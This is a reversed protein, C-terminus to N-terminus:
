VVAAISRTDRKRTKMQKIEVDWKRTHYWCNYYTLEQKWRNESVLSQSQRELHYLTIDRFMRINLGMQRCRMCLDSDEYDGLIYSEDLGGVQEYNSKTMLICAGTVAEVDDSEVTDLLSAPMGKGPHINTWLNNVFESAHYRMGDHQISDDEYVLRVGYVTEDIESSCSEVLQDLWGSSAPMVDSNLLLVLPANAHRVGANNAGAFGMNRELYLVRFPIHYLKEYAGCVTKVEEHIRPDDVVYVIDQKQLYPDNVFQSLQYEIFDYRGYIPIILSVSPSAAKLEACYQISEVNVEEPNRKSWIAEIAPGYAHDFLDRKQPINSPVANLIKQIADLPTAGVRNVKVGIRKTLGNKGKLVLHVSARADLSFGEEAHYLAFGAGPSGAPVGFRAEIDKRPIRTNSIDLPIVRGSGLDVSVSSVPKMHDVLWGSMFFGQGDVVTFNAVRAFPPRKLSNVLRHPLHQIERTRKEGVLNKSIRFVKKRLKANVVSKL